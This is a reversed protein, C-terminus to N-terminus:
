EVPPLPRLEDRTLKGDSNTDLAKLSAPANAIEAAALAGDSNADLALMVPDIPHPRFGPGRASGAPREPADAPPTPRMGPRAPRLEVAGVSGDADTDLTQLASAAGAIEGASIKGNKDADLVRLIPHFRGHGGPGGPGGRRPGRESGGDSAVPQACLMETAVLAAVLLLRHTNKM